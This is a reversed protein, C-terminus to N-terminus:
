RPRLPGVNGSIRERSFTSPLHLLIPSHATTSANCHSFSSSRTHSTPPPCQSSVIQVWSRPFEPPIRISMNLHSVNNSPPKPDWLVPRYEGTNLPTNPPGSVQHSPASGIGKRYSCTRKETAISREAPAFLRLGSGIVETRQDM